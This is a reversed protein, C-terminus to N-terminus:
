TRTFKVYRGIEDYGLRTYLDKPWDAANASLFLFSAGARRAEEAMHLMVASAHGRNRFREATALAELQATDGEIYLEAWSAPEGDVFVAYHRTEVPIFDRAGLLHRAVEPTGWPYSLIQAERAARLAGPDARTVVSTDASKSSPRRLAMVLGRFPEWGLAAFGAALREGDAAARFMVMRHKLGAGGQVRDAEDALAAADVDRPLPDVVLYNSDHRLPCEPLSVATGFRFRETRTGAMDARLIFEFARALDPDM